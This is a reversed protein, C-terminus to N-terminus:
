NNGGLSRLLGLLGIGTGFIGATSNPEYYGPSTTTTTGQGGMSMGIGRGAVDLMRYPHMREDEFARIGENNIAQRQDRYVDGLGLSYQTAAQLWGPLGQAAQMMRNLHNESTNQQMQSMATGATLARTAANEGQQAYLGQTGQAAQLARNADSQLAGSALGQTTLGAQLRRNADNEYAGGYVGTALDNLDRNYMQQVGSNSLGQMATSAGMRAQVQDAARNFTQDLFPNGGPSSGYGYVPRRYIDANATQGPTIGLVSNSNYYGGYGGQPQHGTMGGSMGGGAQGGGSMGGMGGGPNNQGIPQGAMPGGRYTPSIQGGPGAGPPAGTMGGGMGGSMGGSTQEYRPDATWETAGEANPAPLRAAGPIFSPGALGPPLQANNGGFTPTNPNEGLTMSRASELFNGGMGGGMSSPGALGPPLQANNGGFTPVDSLPTSGPNPTQARLQHQQALQGARQQLALQQPTATSPPKAGPTNPRASPPGHMAGPNNAYHNALMSQSEAQGAAARARNAEMQQAARSGPPPAYNPNLSGNRLFPSSSDVGAAPDPPPPAGSGYQADWDALSMTRANGNAIAQSPNVPNPNASQGANMGGGMGGSKGGGSSPPPAGGMAAGGM